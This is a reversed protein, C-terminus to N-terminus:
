EHSIGRNSVDWSTGSLTRSLLRKKVLRKSGQLVALATLVGLVIVSPNLFCPVLM